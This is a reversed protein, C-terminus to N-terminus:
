VHHHLSEELYPDKLPVLAAAGLTKGLAFICVGTAGLIIGLPAFGDFPTSESVTPIILLYMDLVRGMLVIVAIKVLFRGERKGARPLLALFPIAWNMALNLYFLPMWLDHTRRIFHETEEPINAYWILMYQSFWIYAWFTTFALLLKGLDHLHDDTIIGRLTGRNKLWVALVITLAIGGSFLGAFNYVGYMTSFWYPELSMLWDVSALWYSLAFLIVFMASLAVNWRTHSFKGDIDQRRSHWRLAFSFFLWIGAYIAARILWNAHNLWSGKFGAFGHSGEALTTWPYLSPRFILVAAIGILGPLLLGTLAESIRRLVISWGAGTLYQLAIMFVGALAMSVMLFSVLLISAWMLQSQIFTGAAGSGDKPILINILIGVVITVVGIGILMLAGRQISPTLQFGTLRDMVGPSALDAHGSHDGLRPLLKSIDSSM